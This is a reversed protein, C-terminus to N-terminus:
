RSAQRRASFDDDRAAVLRHRPQAARRPFLRTRHRTAAPPHERDEGFILFVQLIEGLVHRSAEQEIGVGNEPEVQVIGLQTRRRLRGDHVRRVLLPDARGTVPFHRDLDADALVGDGLGVLIKPSAGDVHVGEAHERDRRPVAPGDRGQRVRRVLMAVGEVPHDDGLRQDLPHADHARGSGPRTRYRECRTLEPDRPLVTPRPPLDRMRDVSPLFRIPGLVPSGGTGPRATARGAGPRVATTRWGHEDTDIRPELGRGTRGRGAIGGSGIGAPAAPSAPRIGIM